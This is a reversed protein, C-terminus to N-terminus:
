EIALFLSRYHNLSQHDAIQSWHGTLNPIAEPSGRSLKPSEEFPKSVCRLACRVAGFGLRLEASSWDFSDRLLTSCPDFCPRVLTSAAGFVVRLKPYGCAVKRRSRLSRQM